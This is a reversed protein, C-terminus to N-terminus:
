AHVSAPARRGGDCELGHIVRRLTATAPVGGRRRHGPAISAYSTLDTAKGQGAGTDGTAVFSLQVHLLGVLLPCRHRADLSGVGEWDLWREVSPAHGPRWERSTEGRGSSVYPLSRSEAVVTPDM